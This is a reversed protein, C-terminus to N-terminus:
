ESLGENAHLEKAKEAVLRCRTKQDANLRDWFDMSGGRFKSYEKGFVIMAVQAEFTPNLNRTQDRM